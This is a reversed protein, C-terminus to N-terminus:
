GEKLNVKGHFTRGELYGGTEFYTRKCRRGIVIHSVNSKVGRMFIKYHPKKRKKNPGCVLDVNDM